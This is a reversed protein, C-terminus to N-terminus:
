LYKLSDEDDKLMMRKLDGVELCSEDPRTWAWVAYSSSSLHAANGKGKLNSTMWFSFFMLAVIAFFQM